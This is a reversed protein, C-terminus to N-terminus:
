DWDDDSDDANHGKITKTKQPKFIFPKKGTELCSSDDDYNIVGSQALRCQLTETSFDDCNGLETFGVIYDKTKGNTILMITPIIKIRLRGAIKIYILM